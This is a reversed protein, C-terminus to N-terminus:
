DNCSDWTENCLTVTAPLKGEAFLEELLPAVVDTATGYSVSVHLLLEDYSHKFGEGLLKSHRQHVEPCELLLAASFYKGGPEGLTKIGVLKAKYVKDSKSPFINPDRVDYMITAHLKNVPIIDVGEPLKDQIAQHIKMGSSLDVQLECYGFKSM